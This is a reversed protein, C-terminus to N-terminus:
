SQGVGEGCEGDLYVYMSMLKNHGAELNSQKLGIRMPLQTGAPVRDKKTWKRGWHPMHREHLTHSAPVARKKAATDRAVPSALAELAMGGALATVLCRFLM